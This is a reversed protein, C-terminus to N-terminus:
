CSFWVPSGRQGRALVIAMAIFALMSATTFFATFGM